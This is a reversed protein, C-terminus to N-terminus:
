TINIDYKYKFSYFMHVNNAFSSKTTWTFCTSIPHSSKSSSGTATVAPLDFFRRRLLLLLLPSGAPLPLSLSALAEATTAAAAAVSTHAGDSAQGVEEEKEEEVVVGIVAEVGVEEERFNLICCSGVGVEAAEPSVPQQSIIGLLCCPLVLCRLPPAPLDVTIFGTLEAPRLSLACLLVHLPPLLPVRLTLVTPLLPLM